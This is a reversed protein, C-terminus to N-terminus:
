RPEDTGISFSLTHYSARCLVAAQCETNPPRRPVPAYVRPYAFGARPARGATRQIQALQARETQRLRIPM